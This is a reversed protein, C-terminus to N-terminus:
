LSSLISELFEKGALIDRIQEDGTIEREITLAGDYGVDRLKALFRPFDVRGQGIAKERGLRRGDTPYEGDKAHVGRVLSGFVDISDIPNAKGYLLLNAPDVNVGLNDLGIDEIARRLTVPTEQGTEFLFHQGNTRCVGAIYRVISIVEPYIPDNPNEPIYGVHTVFDEVGLKAAFASGALLSQMRIGRYTPPVLGLTLPGEIFDWVAPGPWGCWFATIEVEAARAAALTAAAIEDTFLEQHWGILQCTPFGMEAIKRFGQEPQRDLQTVVGLRMSAM